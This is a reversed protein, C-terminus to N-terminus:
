SMKFLTKDRTIGANHVVVDVGSHAAHQPARRHKALARRRPTIDMTIASGSSRNHWQPCTPATPTLPSTSPSNRHAGDRTLAGAIADGIGRAVRRHGARSAKFLSRVSDVGHRRANSTLPTPAFLLFHYCCKRESVQLIGTSGPIRSAIWLVIFRVPSVAM